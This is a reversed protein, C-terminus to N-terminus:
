KGQSQAPGIQAILTLIQHITSLLTSNANAGQEMSDVQTNAATMLIQGGQRFNVLQEQLLEQYGALKKNIESVKHLTGPTPHDNPLRAFSIAVLSQVLSNQKEANVTLAKSKTAITEQVCNMAAVLLLFGVTYYLNGQEPNETPLPPSIERKEEGKVPAHIVSM